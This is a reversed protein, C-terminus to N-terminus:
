RHDYYDAPLMVDTDDHMMAELEDLGGAPAPVASSRAHRAPVRAPLTTRWLLVVIVTVVSLVAYFALVAPLLVPGTGTLTAQFLGTLPVGIYVGAVALAAAVGACAALPSIGAPLMDRPLLAERVTKALPLAKDQSRGNVVDDAAKTSPTVKWVVDRRGTVWKAVAYLAATNEMMGAFPTVCIARTVEAVKRAPTLAADMVNLWGGVLNSGLWMFGVCAFWASLWAPLNLSQGHHLREFAVYLWWPMYALSLAGVFTGSAYTFIRYRTGWIIKMRMVWPLRHFDSLHTDVAMGQLVGFVWRDRQRHVSPFSFPPQELAVCGHWGFVSPGERIFTDMGFMYDEAVFPNGNLNGIDWGIRNELEEEIVLNSGHIHLINGTEMVKRCEWCTIPRSAETARALKSADEYELPYYIPGTLVQKDTLALHAVMKRFEAPVMLTDEDFHVIFTKGPKRNWGARRLEVLYHMQRAKLGTRRPTVYSKPTVVCDPQRLPSRAFAAKILDAQEGNETVVEASLFDGYFDPDEAALLELQRLGRLIVETSGLSGKTTWQVKIFPVLMQRLQATSVPERARYRGPHAFFSWWYFLMRIGIVTVMVALTIGATRFALNHAIQQYLV